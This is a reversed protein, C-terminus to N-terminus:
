AVVIIEFTNYVTKDLLSTLTITVTGAQLFEIEVNGTINIDWKRVLSVNAGSFEILLANDWTWHAKPNRDFFGIIGYVRVVQGVQGKTYYWFNAGTELCVIHHGISEATPVYPVIFNEINQPTFVKANNDWFINAYMDHVIYGSDFVRASYHVLRGINDFVLVIEVDEDREIDGTYYDAYFERFNIFTAMGNTYVSSRMEFDLFYESGEYFVESVFPLFLTERIQEFNTFPVVFAEDQTIEGGVTTVYRAFSTNDYIFRYQTVVQNGFENRIITHGNVGNSVAHLTADFPMDFPGGYIKSIEGAFIEFIGMDSLPNILTPPNPLTSNLPSATQQNLGSIGAVGLLSSVDPLSPAPGLTIDGAVSNNWNVELETAEARTMARVFTGLNLTGDPNIPSVINPMKEGGNDNGNECAVLAFAM